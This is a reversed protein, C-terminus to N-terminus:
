HSCPAVLELQIPLLGEAKAALGHFTFVNAFPPWSTTDAANAVAARKNAIGVAVVDLREVTVDPVDAV